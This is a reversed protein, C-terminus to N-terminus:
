KKFWQYVISEAPKNRISQSINPFTTHAQINDALWYSNVSFSEVNVYQQENITELMSEYAIAQVSFDTTLTAACNLSWCGSDEVWGQSLTHNWSQVQAVIEIPKTTGYTNQAGHLTTAYYPKLVAVSLNQEDSSSIRGVLSGITVVIKDVSDTVSKSYVWSQELVLKGSYIARLKNALNVLSQERIGAFNTFDPTWDDWDLTMSEYGSSQLIVAQSTMYNSYATYLDSLWQNNTIVLNQGVSDTTCIQMKYRINLGIAHAQQAMWTLDAAPISERGFLSFDQGPTSASAICIYQPVTVYTGGLAKIRQITQVFATHMDSNCGPNNPTKQSGPDLWSDKITLGLQLTAPMHGSVAPLPFAGQYSAPYQVTTTSLLCTDDVVPLTQIQTYTGPYTNATINTNIAVFSGTQPQVPVSTSAGGGGCATLILSASFLLVLTKFM